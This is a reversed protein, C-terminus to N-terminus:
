FCKLILFIYHYDVMAVVRIKTFRLNNISYLTCSFHLQLFKQPLLAIYSHYSETFNEHELSAQHSM